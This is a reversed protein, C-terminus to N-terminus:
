TSFDINPIPQFKAISPHVNIHELLENLDDEFTPWSNYALFIEYTAGNSSDTGGDIGELAISALLHQGVYGSAGTILIKRPQQHQEEVWVRPKGGKFDIKANGIIETGPPLIVKTGSQLKSGDGHVWEEDANIIEYILGGYMEINMIRDGGIACILFTGFM